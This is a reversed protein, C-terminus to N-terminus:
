ENPEIPNLLEKMMTIFEDLSIEGDGNEDVENIVKKWM